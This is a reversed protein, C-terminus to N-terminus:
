NEEEDLMLLISQLSDADKPRKDHRWRNIRPFRVAIGSKHRHSRQINEFALEFVLEPSVSRVPGFSENTNKRVFKDVQKLEADTLGSYAKAFPVLEGQDWVAFTFDTYLSARRGHGRQAYVLVADITFPDVKWKWWDGVPRGVQYNSGRRKLMLGEAQQTGATERLANMQQWTTLPQSEGHTVSPAMRIVPHKPTEHIEFLFGQEHQRPSAVQALTKQLTTIRSEIDLNRIDNGGHELQDFALMAVPVQAQIKAGPKKRGLRRQLMAFTHPREQSADWAVLEGDLVTGDPLMESASVIEPFQESVLEEGRSWIFTQGQRRILQARIGDWKWEVIWQEPQGMTLDPPDKIPNALFFPYPKSIPKETGSPSVLDHYFDTTPEWSGMLRHAIVAPDIGMQEAISRIVLKKSVGVRFAGTLLKGLVFNQRQNFKSWLAVVNRRQIEPELRRLPLIHNEMLDWLEIPDAQPLSPLILSITEALDGVREYCEEFLWASVGTQEVAWDRLQRSKIARKIRQGSLFYIVWIANEAKADAFYRRLAEVKENTKTTTDLQWYLQCFDIM